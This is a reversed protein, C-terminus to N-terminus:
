QQVYGPKKSHGSQRDHNEQNKRCYVSYLEDADMGSRICMSIFFHLVDALEEHLAASDLAKKNKWWKFNVEDLLEGLEAIMALVDKQIWEEMSIHELNRRKTIDQDLLQQKQFIHDLKDM